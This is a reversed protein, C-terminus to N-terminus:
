KKIFCYKHHKHKKLCVCRAVNTSLTISEGISDTVTVTYKGSIPESISQQNSKLNNPGIWSYTYPPVGGNPLVAVFNYDSIISATLNTLQPVVDIFVVISKMLQNISNYFNFTYLGTLNLNDLVINNEGVNLTISKSYNDPGLVELMKAVPSYSLWYVGSGIEINKVKYNSSDVLSVFSSSFNGVAINKGDPSYSPTFPSLGVPVVKVVKYADPGKAAIITLTNPFENPVAIYEGDPSYVIAEPGLGVPIKAVVSYNSPDINSTDIIYINSTSFCSVALQTGDPSYAM